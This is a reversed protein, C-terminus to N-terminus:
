RGVGVNAPDPPRAVGDIVESAGAGDAGDILGAGNGLAVGEIPPLLVETIEGEIPTVATGPVADGLSPGVGPMPSLRGDRAGPM